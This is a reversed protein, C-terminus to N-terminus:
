NCAEYWIPLIRKQRRLFFIGTTLLFAISIISIMVGRVNMAGHQMPYKFVEIAGNLPICYLLYKLWVNNITNISYIIQSAFFLLQLAFPLLYRFDRFKVNMAALFIGIGLSSLFTMLIGLPFWYVAKWDVPYQYAVLLIILVIFAFAFDVCAVILSALPIILRPFYTKRIINANNIMSESSHSIGSSFLGWLVLGSFAYIPYPINDTNVKLVRAFIFYAILMMLLPQLIAWGIGIYTQKYKVKIDRWAFFYLLERSEWIEKLGFSFTKAPVIKIEPEEM